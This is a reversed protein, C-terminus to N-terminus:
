RIWCIPTGRQSEALCDDGCGVGEFSHRPICSPMSNRGWGQVAALASRPVAWARARCFKGNGQLLRAPDPLAAGHFFGVNVHSTFVDCTCCRSPALLAVTGPADNVKNAAAAADARHRHRGPHFHHDISPGGGAAQSLAANQGQFLPSLTCPSAMDSFTTQCISEFVPQIRFQQEGSLIAVLNVDPIQLLAHM